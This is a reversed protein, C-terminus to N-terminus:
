PQGFTRTHILTAAGGGFHARIGDDDAGSGGANARREAKTGTRTMAFMSLGLIAAMVGAIILAPVLSGSM